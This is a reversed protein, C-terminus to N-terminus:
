PKGGKEPPLYKSKGKEKLFSEFLGSDLEKMVAFIVKKLDDSSGDYVAELTNFAAKKDKGQSIVWVIIKRGPDYTEKQYLEKLFDQELATGELLSYYGAIRDLENESNLLRASNIYRDAPMFFVQMPSGKMILFGWIVARGMGRGIGLGVSFLVACLLIIAMINKRHRTM